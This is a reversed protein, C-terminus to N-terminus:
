RWCARRPLRQAVFGGPARSARRGDARARSLPAPAGVATCVSAAAPGLVGGCLRECQARVHTSVFGFSSTETLSTAIELRRASKQPEPRAGQGLSPGEDKGRCRAQLGGTAGALTREDWRYVRGQGGGAEESQLPPEHRGRAGPERRPELKQGWQGRSAAGGPRVWLWESDNM